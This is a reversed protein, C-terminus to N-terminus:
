RHMDREEKLPLHKLWSFERRLVLYFRLQCFDLLSTYNKHMRSEDNKLAHFEYGMVSAGITDLAARYTDIHIDIVAKGGSSEIAQHWKQVMELAFRGFIPLMAKIQTMTFVPLLLKQQNQHSKGEAVVPGEGFVEAFAAFREKQNIYSYCKSVSIYKLIKPDTIISSCPWLHCIIQFVRQLESPKQTRQIAKQAM